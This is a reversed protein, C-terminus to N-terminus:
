VRTHGLPTSMCCGDPCLCYADGNPVGIPGSRDAILEFFLRVAANVGERSSPAHEQKSSGVRYRSAYLDDGRQRIFRGTRDSRTDRPEGQGSNGVRDDIWEISSPSGPSPTWRSRSSTPVTGRAGGARRRDISPNGNKWVPSPYISRDFRPKQAARDDGAGVLM